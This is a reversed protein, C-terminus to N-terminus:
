RLSAIAPPPADLFTLAKLDEDISDHGENLDNIPEMLDGRRAMQESWTYVEGTVKNRLYKAYGVVPPGVEGPKADAREDIVVDPGRNPSVFRSKSM